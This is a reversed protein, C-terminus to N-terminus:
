PRQEQELRNARDVCDACGEIWWPHRLDHDDDDCHCRSPHAGCDLCIDPDLEGLYTV